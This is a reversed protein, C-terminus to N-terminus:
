KFRKLATRCAPSVRSRNAMLCHAVRDRDPIYQGCVTMADNMCAFHDDQARVLTAALLPVLWLLALVIARRFKMPRKWDGAFSMRHHCAAPLPVLARSMGSSFRM